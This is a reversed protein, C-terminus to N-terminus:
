MNILLPVLLPVMASLTTGNILAIVTTYADTAKAILPLTTDMTTAGGPAVAALRGIKVAVLPILIFSIAERM